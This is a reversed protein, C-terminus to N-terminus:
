RAQILFAQKLRFGAGAMGNEAISTGHTFYGNTARSLNASLVATLSMIALLLKAPNIMKKDECHDM